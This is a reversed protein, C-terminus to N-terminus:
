GLPAKVWSTWTGSGWDYAVVWVFPTNPPNLGLTTNIAGGLFCVYRTCGGSTPIVRASAPTDETTNDFGVVTVSNGPTFGSGTVYVYTGDWRASLTPPATTAHSTPSLDTAAVVGGAALVAALAVRRAM